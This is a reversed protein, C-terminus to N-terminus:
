KVNVSLTVPKGDRLVTVTVRNANQVNSIVQPVRAPSDIPVNNVATVVDNPQLGLASVLAADPGGSLRVGIMRGNDLVPQANVQRALAAPDLALQQQVKTFDVAGQAMQPAVFLPTVQGVSGPASSPPPAGPNMGAVPRPPAGPNGGATP